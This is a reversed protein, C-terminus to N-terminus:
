DLKTMDTGLADGSAEKQVSGSLDNSASVHVKHGGTLKLALRMKEALAHDDETTDVVLAVVETTKSSRQATVGALFVKDRGMDEWEHSDHDFGNAWEEFLKYDSQETM